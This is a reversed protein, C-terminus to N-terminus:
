NSSLQVTGFLVNQRAFTGSCFQKQCLIQWFVMLFKTGWDIPQPRTASFFCSLSTNEKLWEVWFDETPFLYFSELWQMETPLAFKSCEFIRQHFSTCAKLDNCRLQSLLNLANLDETSLRVALASRLGAETSPPIQRRCVSILRLGSLSLLCDHDLM